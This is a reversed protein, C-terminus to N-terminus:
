LPWSILKFNIKYYTSDVEPNLAEGARKDIMTEEDLM